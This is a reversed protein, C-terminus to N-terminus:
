SGSRAPRRVPDGALPVSDVLEWTAGPGGSPAGWRRRVLDVQAVEWTPTAHRDLAGVLRELWGLTTTATVAGLTLRPAFARRDVFFGQDQVIAPLVRALDLVGGVDGDLRIAVTPDGPEELAWSGGLHVAPRAPHRALGDALLAGLDRAAATGVNGLGFFPLFLASRDVRALEGDPPATRDLVAEVDDLVEEPPTLALTLLM